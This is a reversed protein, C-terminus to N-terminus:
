ARCQLGNQYEEPFVCAGTSLLMCTLSELTLRELAEREAHVFRQRKMCSGRAELAEREAHVFGM